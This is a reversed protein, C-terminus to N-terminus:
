KVLNVDIVESKNNNLVHIYYLGSKLKETNINVTIEGVNLNGLSKSYVNRGLVDFVAIETKNPTLVDININIFDKAPNPYVNINSFNNEEVNLSGIQFSHSM